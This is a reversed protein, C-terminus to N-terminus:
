TLHVFYVGFGANRWDAALLVSVRRGLLQQDLLLDLFQEFRAGYARGVGGPRRGYQEYLLGVTTQAEAHVVSRQVFHRDFIRVRQWSVFIQHVAKATRLIKSRQIKAAPVPLTAHCLVAHRLGGKVSTVAQVLPRDQRHTKRIGRCRKHPRHIIKEGVQQVTAYYHEEIVYQHVTVGPFLVDLQQTRHKPLQALMAEVALQLFTAEETGTGCEKAEVDGRFAQFDRVGLYLAQPLPRLWSGHFLYLGKQSKYLIEPLKNLAEARESLRQRLQRPLILRKLPTVGLLLRKFYELVPHTGRRDQFDVVAMRVGHHFKVGIGARLGQPGDQELSSGSNGAEM